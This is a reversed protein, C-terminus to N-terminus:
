CCTSELLQGVANRNYDIRWQGIIFRAEELNTFVETNLLERKLTGCFSEPYGNKLHSGSQIFLTKVSLRSLWKRVSRDVIERSNDSRIYDPVGQYIFLNLLVDTVHQSKFKRSVRIALCECTFDDIINLIEFGQGDGTRDTMFVYGWVCNKPGGYKKRWRYYTHASVGLQKSVIDITEGQSLRIEAERMKNLIQESTYGNKVMTVSKM